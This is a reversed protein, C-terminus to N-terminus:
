TASITIRPQGAARAVVQDPQTLTSQLRRRLAEWRIRSRSPSVPHEPRLQLAASSAPRVSLFAKLFSEALSWTLPSSSTASLAQSYAIKLTGDPLSGSLITPASLTVPAAAVTLSFQKSNNGAANTARVTFTFTGASAPTGGIIGTSSGISLGSPLSGSVISWTLPSSGNATLTQSYSTGVTGSIVSASTISPPTATGAVTLSFQKSNTGGSNAAQVSFSFTGGSTPTGSIVGGSSLSLGPPLSGSLTWTLPTSGGAALTQSYATGVTGNALSGTTITPPTVQQTGGRVENYLASSLPYRADGSAGAMYEQYLFLLMYGGVGHSKGWAVTEHVSQTDNYTIFQNTSAVSLYDAKYTNDWRKNLGGNWWTPNGVIQSYYYQTWDMSGSTTGPQTTGSWVYGYAPMGIGLKSAPVGANTLSGMRWDCTMLGSNGAQLLADNHFSVGNGSAMDYCMVNVQDLNPHSAGAVTELGGWNGTDITILKNPMASRLKAILNIYQTTNIGNEWDLDVGDFGNNTIYNKINSVFTDVTGPATASPWNDASLGIMSVIVKVGHAQATSRIEAYSSPTLWNESFSGNPGATACCLQLHTIKNWPIESIPQGMGVTYFGVIWQASLSQIAFSCLLLLLLLRSTRILTFEKM